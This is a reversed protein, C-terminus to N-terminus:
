VEGGLRVVLTQLDKYRAITNRPYEGYHDSELLHPSVLTELLEVPLATKRM